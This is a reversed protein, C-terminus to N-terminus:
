PTFGAASTMSPPLFALAKFLRGMQDHGILRETAAIVSDASDPNAKILQEARDTLGIGALFMGQTVPGLVAAGGRRGAQALAAFDVHASLDDSGPAALAEAFRHGSVAQLTESFGLAAEYGYDVMLAAGGRAAIVGAIEEALALSAPSTEYVGGIPAGERDAPVLGPPAPVPALAFSLEGNGDLTVMRECWGREGRVYQRVPLADFFENAVLFLPRDALSHDFQHQWSIDAAMRGDERGRLTEAQVQQLVPSAEVLVVELDALFDPAVAATRLIDAMLTGRGPGLEVLRPNKPCGQDAWAQVLWLGLMEGFMQSIEPATIFDGQRDDTQAGIPDRTAYYGERPDLLAVTMFQAVSMPGQAEILAAIRSKLTM